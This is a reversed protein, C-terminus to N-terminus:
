KKNVSEKILSPDRDFFRKHYRLGECSLSLYKVIPYGDKRKIIYGKRVLRDKLIKTDMKIRKYNNDKMWEQITRTLDVLKIHSVGPESATCQNLFEGVLDGEDRYTKVSKDVCEPKKIGEKHYRIAGDVIWKFIAEHEDKLKNELNSDKKATFPDYPDPEDVFTRNFPIGHLRNWFAEDEASANPAFNTQLAITHTPYFRVIKAYPNRGVLQDGGTLRKITGTDFRDTQNTESAAIFRKQYLDLMEPSPSSASKTHAATLLLEPQVEGAYDGLIHVLLRVLVGKGNRGQKGLFLLFIHETSMGTLIYGLLVQVYDIMENAQEECKKLWERKIYEHTKGEKDIGDSVDDEDTLYEGKDYYTEPLDPKSLPYKFIEYLFNKFMVPEDAEPDYNVSVRNTIFKDATNTLAEGTYTDVVCNQAGIYRSEKNFTKHLKAVGDKGKTAMELIENQGTLGNLRKLVGKVERWAAVQMNEMESLKEKYKEVLNYYLCNYVEKFHDVDWVGSNYDYILWEKMEINYCFYNALLRKADRALHTFGDSLVQDIDMTSPWSETSQDDLNDSVRKGGQFDIIKGPRKEKDEM